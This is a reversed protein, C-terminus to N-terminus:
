RARMLHRRILYHGNVSRAITRAWELKHGSKNWHPPPFAPMLVVAVGAIACQDVVNPWIDKVPQRTLNGKEQLAQRFQNVDYAQCDILRAEWEGKRLWAMVSGWQVPRATSQRFLADPLAYIVRWRAISAVGCFRLVIWTM